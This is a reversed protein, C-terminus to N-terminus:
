GNGRKMGPLAKTAAARRAAERKYEEASMPGPEAGSQWAKRDDLWGDGSLWTSASPCFRSRGKPTKAFERAAQNIEAPSARSRAKRYARAATRRKVRGNPPYAEWFEAFGEPERGDTGSPDIPAGHIPTEDRQPSCPYLTPLSHIPDVGVHPGTDAVTDRGTDAVTDRGNDPPATPTALSLGLSKLKSKVWRECHDGWDHIMLRHTPDRDLWGAAVMADIFEEPDEMWDCARAISGDPWKGIDGQPAFERAYDWILELFGLAEPRSCGLRAALDLTKPHRLTARLM